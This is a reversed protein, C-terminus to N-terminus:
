TGFPLLGRLAKWLSPLVGGSPEPPERGEIFPVRVPDRTFADARTGSATDVECFAIGEPAERQRVSAAKALVGAAIPMAGDAGTLGVSKADDRGVWAAVVIDPTFGAFWSDCMGNTTGTKGCVGQPVGLRRARSATGREVVQELAYNVLFVVREDLVRAEGAPTEEHIVVDRSDCVADLCSPPRRVGGSAFAAYMVAVDLPSCRAAGLVFSPGQSLSGPPLLDGAVSRVRELGCDLALRVTAQNYSHVLADMLMITGHSTSDQNEPTWRSGDALRVEVPADDVMSALTYTGSLAAYYVVPKMLSGINRRLRVARNFQSSRYDRGGVMALVECTKPDLVVCAAQVQDGLRRASSRVAEEAASQIQMDLTTYIHLGGKALLDDGKGVERVRELVFDVFYPARRAPHAYPVVGLPMAMARTCLDRPVSDNDAMLELVTNRRLLAQAPQRYPSTRNPSRILGALLAAEHLELDKPDKDFFIKSARKFGHISASGYRGLYVENLYLTLIEDKSLAAEMILALWAERIKRSFTREGSLFLNKVLQQTITSGGEAIRRGSLDAVLARLLARVDIGAHSYFRRDEVCLVADLLVRPCEALTMVERDEFGEDYLTAVVEPELVASSLPRGTEPSVISSIKSGELVIRVRSPRTSMGPRNCARLFVELTSGTIRYDGPRRCEPSPRYELRTLRAPLGERSIDVGPQLVFPRSYVKTPLRWVSASALRSMTRYADLSAAALAALAAVALAAM